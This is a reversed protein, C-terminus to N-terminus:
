IERHCKFVPYLKHFAEYITQIDRACTFVIKGNEYILINIRPTEMIYRLLPGEYRSTPLISSLDDLSLMFGVDCCATINVIKFDFLEAHYGMRQLITVYQRVELEAEEESCLYFM